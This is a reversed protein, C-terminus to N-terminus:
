NIFIYTAIAGVAWLLLFVGLLDATAGTNKRSRELTLLQLEAIERDSMKKIEELRTNLNM